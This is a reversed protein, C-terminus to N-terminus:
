PSRSRVPAPAAGRRRARRRAPARGGDGHRRAHLQEPHHRVQQRLLPRASRRRADQRAPAQRGRRDGRRRRRLRLSRQHARSQRDRGAHLRLLQAARGGAQADDGAGRHSALPEDRRHPRRLAVSLHAARGARAARQHRPRHRARARAQRRRRRVLPRHGRDLPRQGAGAPHLAYQVQYPVGAGEDRADIEDGCRLPQDRRRRRAAQRLQPRELDRGPEGVM